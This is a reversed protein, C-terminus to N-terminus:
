SKDKRRLLVYVAGTGGDEIPTSCFALVNDEQQLWSNLKTKLVPKNGKSGWGKGHIIRVCRLRDQRCDYIFEALQQHAIAITMGHLDLEAELSLEGRRLQGFLRQQIGSRRFSLSEENGITRPEFEESYVSDIAPTDRQLKFKAIPEPAAVKPIFGDQKIPKVEDMEQRFLAMDNMDTIADSPKKM